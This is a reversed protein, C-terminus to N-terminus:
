KISITEEPSSDLLNKAQGSGAGAHCNVINHMFLLLVPEIIPFIQLYAPNAAYFELNKGLLTFASARRFRGIYRSFNRIL